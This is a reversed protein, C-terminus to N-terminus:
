CLGTESNAFYKAVSHGLNAGIDFCLSQKRILGGYFLLEQRKQDRVERSIRRYASRAIPFLGFQQLKNKISDRSLMKAEKVRAPNDVRGSVALGFFARLPTKKLTLRELIEIM